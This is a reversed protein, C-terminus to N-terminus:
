SVAQRRECISAIVNTTISSTLTRDSAGITKRQNIDHLKSHM